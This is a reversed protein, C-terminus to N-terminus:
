LRAAIPQEDGFEEEWDIWFSVVHPAESSARDSRVTWEEYAVQAADTSQGGNSPDAGKQACRAEDVLVVYPGKNLVEPDAYGTQDLMCLIENIVQMPGLSEDHVWLRTADNAYDTGTVAATNGGQSPPPPQGVYRDPILRLNGTQNDQAGVVTMQSPVSLPQGAGASTSGGGCGCLLAAAACVTWTRRNTKM